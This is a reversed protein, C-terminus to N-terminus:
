QLRFTSRVSSNLKVVSGVSETTIPVVWFDRDSNKKSLTKALCISGPLFYTKETKRSVLFQLSCNFALTLFPLRCQETSISHKIILGNITMTFYMTNTRSYASRCCPFAKAKNEHKKFANRRDNFWGKKRTSSPSKCDLVFLLLKEGAADGEFYLMRESELLKYQLCSIFQARHWFPDDLKTSSFLFDSVGYTGTHTCYMHLSCLLQKESLEQDLWSCVCMCASRGQSFCVWFHM